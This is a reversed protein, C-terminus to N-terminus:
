LYEHRKKRTISVSSLNAERLLVINLVITSFFSLPASRQVSYRRRPELVNGPSLYRRIEGRKHWLQSRHHPKHPRLPNSRLGRPQLLHPASRMLGGSDVSSLVSMLLRLFLLTVCFSRRSKNCRVLLRAGPLSGIAVSCLQLIIVTFITNDPSEYEHKISPLLQECSVNPAGRFPDYMRRRGKM